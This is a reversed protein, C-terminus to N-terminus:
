ACSAFGDGNFFNGNNDETYMAFIVAWRKLNAECLIARARKRRPSQIRSTRVHLVSHVVIAVLGAAVLLEIRTLGRQGVM